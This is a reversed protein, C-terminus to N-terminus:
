PECNTIRVRILGVPFRDYGLDHIQHSRALLCLSSSAAEANGGASPLTEEESPSVRGLGMFPLLQHVCAPSGFLKRVWRAWNSGERAGVPPPRVSQRVPM